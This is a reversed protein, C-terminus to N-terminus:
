RGQDPEPGSRRLAVEVDPSDNPPIGAHEMTM